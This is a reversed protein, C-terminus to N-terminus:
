SCGRRRSSCRQRTSGAPCRHTFWADVGECSQSGVLARQEFSERGRRQAPQCGRHYSRLHPELELPPQLVDQRQTWGRRQAQEASEAQQHSQRPDRGAEAAGGDPHERDRQEVDDRHLEAQVGGLTSRRASFAQPGEIQHPDLRERPTNLLASVAAGPLDHGSVEGDDELSLIQVGGEDNAFAAVYEAVQDRVARRKRATKKGLPGEYMSKRDFHQGEERDLFPTVEFRSGPIGAAM